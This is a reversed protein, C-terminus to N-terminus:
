SAATSPRSSSTLFSTKGRLFKATKLRGIHFPQSSSCSVWCSFSRGVAVEVHEVLDGWFNLSVPSAAWPDGVGFPAAQRAAEPHAKSDTACDM